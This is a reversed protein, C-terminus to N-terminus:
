RILLATGTSFARLSFFGVDCMEPGTVAVNYM